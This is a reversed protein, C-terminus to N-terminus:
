GGVSEPATYPTLSINCLVNSVGSGGFDGGAFIMQRDITWYDATDEANPNQVKPIQLVVNHPANASDIGMLYQMIANSYAVNKLAPVAFEIKFMASEAYATSEGNGQATGASSLIDPTLAPTRTIRISSFSVRQNDILLVIDSTNVANELFAVGIMCTYTVSDGLVDRQNRQGVAPLSYSIGGEYYKGEVDSVAIKQSKSLVASLKNRFATVNPFENNVRNIENDESNSELAYDGDGVPIIFSLMIQYGIAVMGGNLQQVESSTLMLLGNIPATISNRNRKAKEFDGVDTVINFTYGTEELVKMIFQNKIDDITILM